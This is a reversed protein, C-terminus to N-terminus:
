CNEKPFWTEKDYIEGSKGGENSITIKKRKDKVWHGFNYGDAVVWHYGKVKIEPQKGHGCIPFRDEKM